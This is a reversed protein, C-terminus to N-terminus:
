VVTCECATDGEREGGSKRAVFTSADAVISAEGQTLKQKVGRRSRVQAENSVYRTLVDM